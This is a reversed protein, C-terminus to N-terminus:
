GRNTKGLGMSVKLAELEEVAQKEAAKVRQNVEEEGNPKAPRKPSESKLDMDISKRRIYPQPQPSCQTRMANADWRQKASTAAKASREIAQAIEKDMRANYIKGNKRSFYPLLEAFTRRFKRRDLRLLRALSAEDDPLPGNIWYYDLILNYLGHAELSLMPTDALYDGPYRPYWPRSPM